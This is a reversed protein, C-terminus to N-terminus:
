RPNQSTLVDLSQANQGGIRHILREEDTRELLRRPIDPQEEAIRVQEIQAREVGARQVPRKQYAVVRQNRLILEPAGILARFFTVLPFFVYHSEGACKLFSLVIGKEDKELIHTNFGPGRSTHFRVPRCAALARTFLDNGNPRERRREPECGYSRGSM